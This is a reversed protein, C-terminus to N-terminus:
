RRSADSFCSPRGSASDLGSEEITWRTLEAYRSTDPVPRPRLMPSCAPRGSRIWASEIAARYIKAPDHLPTEKCIVVKSAVCESSTALHSLHTLLHSKGAGFGGGILMGGPPAGYALSCAQELLDTFRDEAEQQISGLVTVAYCNPAGARLAELARRRM